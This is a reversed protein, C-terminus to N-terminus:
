KQKNFILPVSEKGNERRPLIDMIPRFSIQVEVVQPLQGMSKDKELNIEWPSTQPITVNVSELLGPVRYLYDGITLKIVPARMANGAGTAAISTSSYDPYVQSILRNLKQYMPIMDQRSQAAIMFSFAISREFGLYTYFNEGRGIYKFSNLNATNSDTIASSIFARFMIVSTKDPDDNDIAEFAFKIIDKNNVGDLESFPDEVSSIIEFSEQRNLLDEGGEVNITYNNPKKGIGPRGIKLRNQLTDSQKWALRGSSLVNASEKYKGLNSRFDTNLDTVGAVISGSQQNLNLYNMVETSTNITTDEYRKILTSGLGYVSSPGGLYNFMVNSNTSIGMSNMLPINTKYKLIKSEYLLILRNNTSDNKVNEENVINFYYKSNFDFPVTGARPYHVGTGAAGIQSLSNIGGNYIRTNELLNPLIASGGISLSKGTQMKPNSLQLSIQKQIFTKGQSTKFFQKIRYVDLEGRSTITQAGLSLTQGGRMPYDSGFLLQSDLRSQQQSPKAVNPNTSQVFPQGSWGGGLRDLDYKLNTLNSKLDILPM